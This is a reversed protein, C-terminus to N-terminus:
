CQRRALDFRGTSAFAVGLTDLATPDEGLARVASKAYAVARRSNAENPPGTALVWALNNQIEPSNPEEALAKEYADIAAPRRGLTQYVHGLTEFTRASAHLAVAKEAHALAAEENRGRLRLLSATVHLESSDRGIWALRKSATELRNVDRELIARVGGYEAELAAWGYIVVCIAGAVAFSAAAWRAGTSLSSSPAPDASQNRILVRAIRGDRLKWIAGDLIFHHINVVAAVMVALGADFPVRGLIEPAFILGPVIWIAAGAFLAKRFQTRQGSFGPSRAAFYSTIWLYQVSHGIGVWLFAYAAHELSFPELDSFFGAYRATVPISFWLAQTLTITAVPVLDRPSAVRLLQIAAGVLCGAYAVGTIWLLTASVLPPFPIAIFRYVTNEYAIPAYDVNSELAHISLLTLIFSLTFSSYVLRQTSKSLNPVRRRLFMMAIGYNQGTYHWPSWTLYLTLILSGALDNHVGVAFGVWVAITTFVAFVVYARRDERRAYVRLLTAGYHPIGTFLIALPLLGVPLLSRMSPGDISLLAFVLAYAVGCGWLLDPVPGFFWRSTAAQASSPTPTETM